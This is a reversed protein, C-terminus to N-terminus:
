VVSLYQFKLEKKKKKFRLILCPFAGDQQLEKKVHCKYKLSNQKFLYNLICCLNLFPNNGALSKFLYHKLLLLCCIFHVFHMYM